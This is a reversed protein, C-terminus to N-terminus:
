SLVTEADLHSSGESRQVVEAQIKAWVKYGNNTSCWHWASPLIFRGKFVDHLPPPSSMFIFAYSTEGNWQFTRWRWAETERIWSSFAGVLLQVPEM